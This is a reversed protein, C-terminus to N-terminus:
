INGSIQVDVCLRKRPWQKSANNTFFLFCFCSKNATLHWKQELIITEAQTLLEQKTIL